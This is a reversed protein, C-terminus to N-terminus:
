QKLSVRTVEDIWQLYPSFGAVIPLQIIEPTEYTHHKRVFDELEQYQASRAKIFLLCEPENCAVGKWMYYSRIQQVQVCAALKSEIIKKALEEALEPSSATTLVVCYLNNSIM